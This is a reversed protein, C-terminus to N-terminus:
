IEAAKQRVGGGGLQCPPSPLQALQINSTTPAVLWRGAPGGERLLEKVVREGINQCVTLKPM